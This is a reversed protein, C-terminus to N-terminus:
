ENFDGHPGGRPWVIRWRKWLQDIALRSVGISARFGGTIPACHRGNSSAGM